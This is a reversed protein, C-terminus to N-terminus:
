FTSDCESIVVSLPQIFEDQRAGRAWLLGIIFQSEGMTWLKMVKVFIHLEGMGNESLSKM